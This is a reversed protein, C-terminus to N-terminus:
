KETEHHNYLKKIFGSIAKRFIFLSTDAPSNKISSESAKQIEKKKIKYKKAVFLADQWDRETGRRLKAIVFHTPELVSVKLKQNEYVRILKKKYDAPLSIVSWRSIDEGIDAIWNKQKLFASLKEINGHVEADLDRTKRDKMGYYHMALGGVLIVELRERKKSTFEKLVEIASKLDVSM